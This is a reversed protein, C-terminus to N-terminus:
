YRCSKTPNSIKKAPTVHNVIAFFTGKYPVFHSTELMTYFFCKETLIILTIVMSFPEIFVHKKLVRLHHCGIGM